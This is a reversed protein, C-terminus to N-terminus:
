VVSKRDLAMLKGGNSIKYGIERNETYNAFISYGETLKANSYPNSYGFAINRAYGSLLTINLNDRRGSFNYHTFDVGYVVRNFDANFTSYWENFSRDVLHFQPSPFIYWREKVTVNVALTNDAILVSDVKAEIFLNINYVQTAAQKFIAPLDKKAISDGTAFPLEREIIFSKTKKNGIIQISSIKVFGTDVMVQAFLPPSCFCILLLSFLKKKIM